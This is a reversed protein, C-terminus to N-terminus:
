TPRAKSRRSALERGRAPDSWSGVIGFLVVAEPEISKVGAEYAPKM